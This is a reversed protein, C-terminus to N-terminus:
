RLAFVTSEDLPGGMFRVENDNVAVASAAHRSTFSVPIRVWRSGDGSAWADSINYGNSGALLIFVNGVVVV